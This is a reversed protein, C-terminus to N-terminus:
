LIKKEYDQRVNIRSSTIRNELLVLASDIAEHISLPVAELQSSRSFTLLANVVKDARLAANKVMEIYKIGREDAKTLKKEIREVAQLIIALPNKIEHAVGSALIGVTAMKESQILQDQTSKLTRNTQEMDKLMQILVKESSALDRNARELAERNKRIAKEGDQMKTIIKQLRALLFLSAVVLAFLFLYIM